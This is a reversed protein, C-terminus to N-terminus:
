ITYMRVLEAQLHLILRCLCYPFLQGRYIAQWIYCMCLKYKYFVVHVVLSIYSDTTAM